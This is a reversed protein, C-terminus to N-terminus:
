HHAAPATAAAEWLVIHQKPVLPQRIPHTCDDHANAHLLSLNGAAPAEGTFMVRIESQMFPRDGYTDRDEETGSGRAAVEEASIVSGQQIQKQTASSPPGGRKNPAMSVAFRLCSQAVQQHLVTICNLAHGIHGDTRTQRASVLKFSIALQM